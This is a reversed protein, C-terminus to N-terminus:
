AYSQQADDYSWGSCSASRPPVLSMLPTAPDSAPPTVVHLQHLGAFADPLVSMASLSHPALAHAHAPAPQRRHASSYPAASPLWGHTHAIADASPVSEGNTNGPWVVVCRPANTASTNELPATVAAGLKDGVARGDSAGVVAPGVAAGLAAGVAEGVLAAGVAAPYVNAGDDTGLATGVAGVLWGLAAGVMPLPDYATAPVSVSVHVGDASRCNTCSVTTAFVLPQTATPGDAVPRIAL